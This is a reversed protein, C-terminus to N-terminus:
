RASGHLYSTSCCRVMQSNTLTIKPPGICTFAHLDALPQAMVTAALETALRTVTSARQLWLAFPCVNTISTYPTRVPSVGSDSSGIAGQQSLACPRAQPQM